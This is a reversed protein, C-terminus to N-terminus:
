PTLTSLHCVTKFQILPTIWFKRSCVKVVKKSLNLITVATILRATELKNMATKANLLSHLSRLCSLKLYTCVNQYDSFTTKKVIKAYNEVAAFWVVCLNPRLLSGSIRVVNETRAYRVFRRRIEIVKFPQNRFCNRGQYTQGPKKDAFVPSFNAKPM